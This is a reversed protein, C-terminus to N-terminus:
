IILNNRTHVFCNIVNGYRCSYPHQLNNTILTIGSGDYHLFKRELSTSEYYEINLGKEVIKKPEIPMDHTGHNYPNILYEIISLAKKHKDSCKSLNCECLYKYINSVSKYIDQIHEKIKFANKNDEKYDFQIFNELDSSDINFLYRCGLFEIEKFISTEGGNQTSSNVQSDIMGFTSEKRTLIRNGMFSVITGASFVFQPIIVTLNKYSNTEFISQYISEYNYNKGGNSYLILGLSDNNYKNEIRLDRLQKQFHRILNYEINGYYTIVDMKLYEEIDIIADTLMKINTNNLMDTILTQKCM